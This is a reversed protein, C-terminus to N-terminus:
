MTGAPKIIHKPTKGQLFDVVAQTSIMQMGIKGQDTDSGVHPSAIINLGKLPLERDTWIEDVGYGWLKGEKVANYAAKYDVLIGRACNVLVTTPKMM